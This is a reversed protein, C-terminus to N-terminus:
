RLAFLSNSAVLLQRQWKKKGFMNVLIFRFGITGFAVEAATEYTSQHLHKATEVLLRLSKETLLATLTILAVGAVFGTQQMAYPLGVIGSGVICTMLNAACGPIHSKHEVVVIGGDNDNNHNDDGVVVVSAKITRAHTGRPTSLTQKVVHRPPVRPGAAAEPSASLREPEYPFMQHSCILEYVLAFDM